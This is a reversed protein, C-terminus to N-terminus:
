DALARFRQTDNVAPNSYVADWCNGDSNLLQVRVPPTLPLTPAGINSGTLRGMSATSVWTAMSLRFTTRVGVARSSASRISLLEPAAPTPPAHADCRAGGIPARRSASM